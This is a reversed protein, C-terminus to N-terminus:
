VEGKDLADIRRQLEAPDLKMLEEQNRLHLIETLREREAKRAGAKRAAENEAQKVGIVHVIVALKAELEPKAPNTSTNVFSEETIAKLQQNIGRAVSDLDFGTKSQLPLEWLQETTLDGRISPYRFKNRTALEFSM